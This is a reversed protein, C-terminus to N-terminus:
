KKRISAYKVGIILISVTCFVVIVALAVGGKEIPYLWDNSYEPAIFIALMSLPIWWRTFRFWAQYIEERMRYTVFSFIFLPIFLHTYPSIITVLSLFGERCPLNDYCSEFLNSYAFLVLIVQLVFGGIFIALTKKKSIM